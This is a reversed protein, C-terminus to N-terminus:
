RRLPTPHALRSGQIISTPLEHETREAIAADILAQLESPSAVGDEAVLRYDRRAFM